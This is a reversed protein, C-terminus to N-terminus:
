LLLSPFYNNMDFCLTTDIKKHNTSDCGQKKHTTQMQNKNSYLLEKLRGYAKRGDSIRRRRSKWAYMAFQKFCNFNCDAYLFLLEEMKHMELNFKRWWEREKETM